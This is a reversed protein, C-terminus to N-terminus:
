NDEQEWFLDSVKLKRAKLDKSLNVIESDNISEWKQEQFIQKGNGSITQLINKIQNIKDKALNVNSIDIQAVEAKIMSHKKCSPCEIDINITSGAAGIIDVFSEDTNASCSPCKYTKIFNEIMWKLTQYNM